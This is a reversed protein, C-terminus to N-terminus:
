KMKELFKIRDNLGIDKNDFDSNEVWRLEHTWFDPYHGITVEDKVRQEFDVYSELLTPFFRGIPFATKTAQDEESTLMVLRPIQSRPFDNRSKVMGHLTQFRNAEFAPNLLIVLDGVGRVSGNLLEVDMFRDAFIQSLATYMVAGGFSHGLLVLRTPKTKRLRYKSWINQRLRDLRMFLETVDGAGVIHATSKREWFTLPWIANASDGRWGIYIGVVKRPIRGDEKSLVQEDQTINSLLKKFYDVNEDGNSANHRWGHTFTVVLLDQQSAELDMRKLLDEMQERKHFRGQDDFEVFGLLYSDTGNM